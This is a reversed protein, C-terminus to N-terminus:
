LSVVAFGVGSGFYLLSVVLFGVPVVNPDKGPTEERHNFLSVGFGQM